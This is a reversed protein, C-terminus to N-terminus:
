KLGDEDLYEALARRLKQRGRHIHAKVTGVACGMAAATSQLDMEELAFLQLAVRQRLPLADMARRAARDFELMAVQEAPDEGGALPIRSEAPSVEPADTSTNPKRRRLASIACNVTIRHVWGAFACREDFRNLAQFVRMFSEQVVDEADDHHRVVAFALRYVAQRHRHL